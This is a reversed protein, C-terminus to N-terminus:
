FYYFGGISASLDSFIRDWIQTDDQIASLAEDYNVSQELFALDINKEEAEEIIRELTEQSENVKQEMIPILGELEAKRAEAKPKEKEATNYTREARSWTEYGVENMGQQMIFTAQFMDSNYRNIKNELQDIAGNAIRYQESLNFMNELSQRAEMEIPTIITNLESVEEVDELKKITEELNSTELYLDILEGISNSVELNKNNEQSKILIENDATLKREANKVQSKLRAVELEYRKIQIYSERGGSTAWDSLMKQKDKLDIKLNNLTSKANNVNQQADEPLIMKPDYIYGTEKEYFQKVVEKNNGFERLADKMTEQVERYISDKGLQKEIDEKTNRLEIEKSAIEEMVKKYEQITPTWLNNNLNDKLIDAGEQNTPVGLSSDLLDRISEGASLISGIIPIGLVEESLEHNRKRYNGTGMDVALLGLDVVSAIIDVPGLKELVETPLTALREGWEVMGKSISQGLKGTFRLELKAGLDKLLPSIVKEITYKVEDVVPNKGQAVKIAPALGDSDLLVQMIDPIYDLVKNIKENLPDSSTFEGTDIVDMFEIIDNIEKGKLGQSEAWNDFNEHENAITSAIFDAYIKQELIDSYINSIRELESQADYTYIPDRKTFNSSNVTSTNRSRNNSIGSGSGNNNIGSASSNNNISTSSNSSNQNIGSSRTNQSPQFSINQNIGSM